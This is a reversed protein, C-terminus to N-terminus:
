CVIIRALRTKITKGTAGDNINNPVVPRLHFCSSDAIGRFFAPVWNMIPLYFLQLIRGVILGVICSM